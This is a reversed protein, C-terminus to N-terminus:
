VFSLSICLNQLSFSKTILYIYCNCLLFLFYTSIFIMLCYLLYKLAFSTPFCFVYFYLDYLFIFSTVICFINCYLLCLLAVSMAISFVYCFLLCLLVFSMSTKIHVINFAFCCRQLICYM